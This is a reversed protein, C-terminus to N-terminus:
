IAKGSIIDFQKAMSPLNELKISSSLYYVEVSEVDEANDEVLKELASFDFIAEDNEKRMKVLNGFTPFVKKSDEKLQVWFLLENDIGAKSASDFYTAGLRFAIKLKEIDEKSLSATGEGALAVIEELNKPNISFHHLYHGEQLKSQRGLTTMEAGEKDAFPSMIQESFINDEEWINIGHNIQTPGHISIAVNDGSKAKMAFTAGFARIDLCSLLDKAFETKSEKRSNPFQHDYTEELSRPNFDGKQTKFYFIKESPYLDKLYNKILYKFAKDTAYVKGNPLTRPQHSFDANYNANIARVIACGFVRNQFNM